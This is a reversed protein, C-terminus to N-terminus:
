LTRLVRKRSGGSHCGKACCLQGNQGAPATPSSPFTITHQLGTCTLARVITSSPASANVAAPVLALLGILLVAKM